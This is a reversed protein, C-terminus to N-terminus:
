PRISDCGWGSYVNIGIKGSADSRKFKGTVTYDQWYECGQTIYHTNINAATSTTKWLSSDQVFLTTDGTLSNNAGTELLKAPLIVKRDFDL